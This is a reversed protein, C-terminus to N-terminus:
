FIAHLKFELFRRFIAIKLSLFNVKAYKPTEIMWQRLKKKEALAGSRWSRGENDIQEAALVTGDVPDWNVQFYLSIFCVYHILVEALTRKVLGREYLKM